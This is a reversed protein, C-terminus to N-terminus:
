EVLPESLFKPCFYRWHTWPQKESTENIPAIGEYTQIEETSRYRERVDGMAVLLLPAFCAGAGPLSDYIFPDIKWKCSVAVKRNGSDNNFEFIDHKKDAWDIGILAAFDDDQNLILEKM